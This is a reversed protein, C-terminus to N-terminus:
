IREKEQTSPLFALIDQKEPLWERLVCAAGAAVAWQLATQYTQSHLWGALFGAVMSDGAGVSNVIPANLPVAPARYVAGDAALLIAGAAGRSVLVNQAGAQQAKRAYTLLDQETCIAVGFLDALEAENPKILFPQFALAQGLLPGVADVVCLVGRGQLRQLIEGYITREVGASVAGSLVLVDGTQLQDLKLLLEQLQAPPIEPGRGNIDSEHTSKIKVNIRNQGQSLGIFDVRSIHGKLMSLMAQGTYGAAFGLATTPFGLRELVVAVNIGKGGPLITERTARSIGGVHLDQVFMVYDLSPNFTVTYIM